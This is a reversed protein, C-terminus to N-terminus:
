QTDNKRGLAAEIKARTSPNQDPRQQAFKLRAHQAPDLARIPSYRRSKKFHLFLTDGHASYCLRCKLLAYPEM